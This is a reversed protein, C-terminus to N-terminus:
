RVQRLRRPLPVGPPQHMAEFPAEGLRVARWVERNTSCFAFVLVASAEVLRGFGEPDKPMGDELDVRMAVGEVAWFAFPLYAADVGCLAHHLILPSVRSSLHALHDRMVQGEGKVLAIRRVRRVIRSRVPNLGLRVLQQVARGPQKGLINASADVFGETFWALQNAGFQGIAGYKDTFYRYVTGVSVGAQAAIHDASVTDQRGLLAGTADVIADFTARARPQKPPQKAWHGLLAVDRRARFLRWAAGSGLSRPTEATARRWQDRDATLLGVVMLTLEDALAAEQADDDLWGTRAGHDLAASLGHVLVAVDERCAAPLRRQVAPWLRDAFAREARLRIPQTQAESALSLAGDVVPDRRLRCAAAVCRGAQEPLPIEADSCRPLQLQDAALHRTLLACLIADRDQFYQYLTGISVGAREAISNTTVTGNHALLQTTAELIADVTVQARSQTPTKRVGKVM